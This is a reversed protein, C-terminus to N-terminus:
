MKINDFFIGIRVIFKLFCVKVLILESKSCSLRLRLYGEFLVGVKNKIRLYFCCM